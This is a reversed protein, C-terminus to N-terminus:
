YNSLGFVIIDLEYDLWINLFRYIDCVRFLIVM